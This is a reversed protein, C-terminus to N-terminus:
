KIKMFWKKLLGNSLIQEYNFYISEEGNKLRRKITENKYLSKSLKPTVKEILDKIASIYFENNNLPFYIDDITGNEYFYFKCFPINNQTENILTKNKDKQGTYNSFLNNNIKLLDYITKSEDYINLGGLYISDTENIKTINLILLFAEYLYDIENLDYIKDIRTKKNLAVIFDTLITNNQGKQTENNERNYNYFNTSNKTELYRSVFNEERKKEIVLEKKRKFWGFKLHGILLVCTAILLLGLFVLTIIIIKKKKSYKIVSKKEQSSNESKKSLSELNFNSTTELVPFSTQNKSINNNNTISSSQNPSKM